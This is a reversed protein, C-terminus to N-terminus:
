RGLAAKIADIIPQGNERTWTATLHNWDRYVLTNDEVAPCTEGDKCYVASMDVFTFGPLTPVSLQDLPTYAHDFDASCQTTDANMEVCLPPDDTPEFWPNDRIAVVPIGMESMREFYARYAEPVEDHGERGRTAITVIVDPPDAEIHDLIEQSWQYCSQDFEEDFLDLQGFLCGSKTMTVVKADAERAAQDVVDAWQLSHSGGVVLITKDSDVNDWDCKTVEPNKSNQHCGDLSAIPRDERAIAPAPVIHSLTAGNVAADQDVDVRLAATAQSVETKFVSSWAGTMVAPVFMMAAVAGVTALSHEQLKPAMRIPNEVFKTTLVALIGAVLIIFIGGLLSVNQGVHIRWLVLIPWHWLYFAFSSDAFWLIPKWRLVFPEVGVSSGVIISVACCVPILSLYGPLLASLDLVAGLLLLGVLGVWSLVSAVTRNIPIPRRLLLYLLGGAAFEWLRAFTSFYAAQQAVNTAYISYVLSVVFVAALSYSLVRQLPKRRWVLLAALVFLAYLFYFQVNVSLAWFQQFIPAQLGQQLYDTSNRILEWNEFFLLSAWASRINEPWLIRPLMWWSLMVTAVVIVTASPVVRRLTRLLYDRTAKLRNNVGEAKELKLLSGTAFYGAVVFFVDVGGSVRHFWIHYMAVLLAAVTRVGQVGVLYQKRETIVRKSVFSKGNGRQGLEAFALM